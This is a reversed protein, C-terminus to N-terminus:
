KKTRGITRISEEKAVSIAAKKKQSEGIGYGEDDSHGGEASGVTPPPGMPTGENNFNPLAGRTKKRRAPKKAPIPEPKKIITRLDADPATPKSPLMPLSSYVKKAESREQETIETSDLCTLLPMRSIVYYRYDTYEKLTKGTFYNPCAENKLMSLFRLNPTNDVLKDIFIILNSIQNSNVWLTHLKDMKPFKTHSNIENNDLVLTELKPFSKLFGLERLNNNSLDLEKLTPGFQQTIRQDVDFLERYALTLKEVPPPVSM